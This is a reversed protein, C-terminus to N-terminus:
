NTYQRWNRLAVPAIERNEPSFTFLVADFSLWFLSNHSTIPPSSTTVEQASRIFESHLYDTNVEWTAIEDRTLVMVKGASYWSISAEAEM